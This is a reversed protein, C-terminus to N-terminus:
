RKRSAVSAVAGTLQHAQQINSKIKRIFRDSINAGYGGARFADHWQQDSLSQLLATAWRLDDLTVLNRVLDPRKGNYDFHVFGNRWGAIYPEGEFEEINNRKVWYRGSDGLAGGLDRVVYWRSTLGDRSLDYIENNSDKLDWSTFVLLITLLANYPRTGRVTPDKWSWNGRSRLSPDTLRFRGGSAAHVGSGDNMLFSGLYYVPPQHYGMASLVRSLAVEVPGEAGQDSRPAQKVHWVRGHPDRVIVGPNVGSEKRRIFTYVAAPDPAAEAGWPGNFTDRDRPGPPEWLPNATVAARDNPSPLAAMPRPSGAVTLLAVLLTFPLRM